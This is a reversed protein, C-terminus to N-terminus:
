FGFIYKRIIVKKIKKLEPFNNEMDLFYDTGNLKSIMQFLHKLEKLNISIKKTKFCNYFFLINEQINKKKYNNNDIMLILLYNWDIKGIQNFNDKLFTSSLFCKELINDEDIIISSFFYM